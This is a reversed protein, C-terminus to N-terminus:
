FRTKRREAFGTINRFAYRAGNDLVVSGSFFGCVQRRQLSHFFLDRRDGREQCPAFTMELRKDSGTFRWPELWNASPIHFTVQDLKHLAGDLFFANETGAGSDASSCGLNFGARRGGSAGCASAWLRTDSRPRVGRGWDLIGWAQDKVFALTTDGLQMTGEVAYWPSGRACWFASKERPWPSNTLISEAEPPPLLAVEGRLSRHHAFRPIDVKVIRTGGAMASFSLVFNKRQIRISGADSNPSLRYIGRPFPAAFSQVSRKKDRLSFVSISIHGLAGGDLLEFALLHTPSFIIHRELETVRGYPPRLLDRDYQFVPSRAWGFHAPKGSEDM